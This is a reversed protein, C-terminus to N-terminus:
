IYGHEAFSCTDNGTVIFHDIVNIDFIQLAEKIKDTIARDARSPESVGSPHNHALVVAAANCELAKRAIVRIHVSSSDVTGRFLKEFTILQHQSTLFMVAFWEDMAPALKMKLFNRVDAPRTYIDQTTLRSQIADLAVNIAELEYESYKTM